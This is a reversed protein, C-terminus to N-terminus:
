EVSSSAHVAEAGPVYIRIVPRQPEVPQAPPTIVLRTYSSSATAPTVTTKAPSSCGVMLLCPLLLSIRSLKM